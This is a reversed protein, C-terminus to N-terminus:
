YQSVSWMPLELDMLYKYVEFAFSAITLVYLFVTRWPIRRSSSESYTAPNEDLGLVTTGVSSARNTVFIRWLAYGTAAPILAIMLLGVATFFDRDELGYLQSSAGFCDTIM